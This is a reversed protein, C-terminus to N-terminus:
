SDELNKDKLAKHEKVCKKVREKIVKGHSTKGPNFRIYKKYVLDCCPVCHKLIIGDYHCPCNCYTVGNLIHREM